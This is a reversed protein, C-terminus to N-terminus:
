EKIWADGRWMFRVTMSDSDGGPSVIADGIWSKASEVTACSRITLQATRWAPGDPLARVQTVLVCARGACDLSKTDEAYVPQGPPAGPLAIHLAYVPATSAGGDLGCVLAPLARIAVVTSSELPADGPPVIKLEHTMVATGTACGSLAAMLGGAVARPWSRRAFSENINTMPFRPCQTARMPGAM